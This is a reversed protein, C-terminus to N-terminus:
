DARSLNPMWAIEGADARIKKSKAAQIVVEPVGPHM